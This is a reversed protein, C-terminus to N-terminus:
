IHHFETVIDVATHEPVLLTTDDAYKFLNNDTSIAKLDSKMSIYLQPGIGSGQVIGQNIPCPPLFSDTLKVCKVGVLLFLSYGTGSKCFKILM